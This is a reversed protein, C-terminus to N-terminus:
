TLRRCPIWAWFTSGHNEKSTFGIKGGCTDVIAKCISLGLGTGQAFNDLKEFRQFIRHQKEEPIGIGTDSVAIKVGGNEYVYSATITGHPTYKIANTIFNTLIQAIRQHDSFIICEAYPNNEVLKVGAPVKSKVSSITDAFCKSMDFKNEAIQVAGAEIKSLDLIDNVLRLLLESNSNILSIYENKSEQDDDEQLLGAFGVIANLPTRIDHSMNALFASKLKDAEKAKEMEIKLSEQISMLDTVDRRLGFFDTVKGSKDRLPVGNYSIFKVGIDGGYDIKRTVSFPKCTGDKISNYIARAEIKDQASLRAFFDSAKIEAVVTHVDSYVKFVDTDPSYKWTQINSEKMVFDMRTIFYRMKEGMEVLPTNDRRFGVYKLVVGNQGVKLPAATAQCYHWKGDKPYWLQVDSSLNENSGTKLKDIMLQMDKIDSLKVIRFYEDLDMEKGDEYNLFPDNYTKIKNSRTDLEWYVTHSSKLALAMQKGRSNLESEASVIRKKLLLSYFAFFLASFILICIIVYVGPPINIDGGNQLWKDTLTEYSGDVNMRELMDSIKNMLATDRGVFCYRQTPLHMDSIKINKIKLSKLLYRAVQGECVVADYKGKSLDSIAPGYDNVSIVEKGFGMAMLMEEMSTESEVLIKKGALQSLSTIKKSGKRYLVCHTLSNHIPGYTYKQSKKATWNMGIIVSNPHSDYYKLVDPWDMSIIRFRSIGLRKMLSRTLDINFGVSKGNNDVFEYPPYYLDALFIISDSQSILQVDTEPSEVDSGAFANLSCCSFSIILLVAIFLTRKM